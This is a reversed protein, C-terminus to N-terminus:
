PTAPQPRMAVTGFVVTKSSIGVIIPTTIVSSPMMTSAASARNTHVM